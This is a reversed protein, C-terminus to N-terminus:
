VLKLDDLFLLPSLGIIFFFDSVGKVLGPSTLCELLLSGWTLSIERAAALGEILNPLSPALSWGEWDCIPIAEM